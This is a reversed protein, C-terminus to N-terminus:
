SNIHHQISHMQHWVYLTYSTMCFHTHFWHLPQSSFSVTPAIDLVMPTIDHQLPHSMFVTTQHSLTSKIDDTTCLTVCIRLTTDRDVVCLTTNDYMTSIIDYIYHIPHWMYATHSIMCLTATIDNISHTHNCLYLPHSTLYLPHSTLYLPSSTMFLSIHHLLSHIHHWIYHMHHWIYLPQSSKCESREMFNTCQKYHWIYKSHLTLCLPQSPVCHKHPWLVTRSAMDLSYTMIMYPKIDYITDNHSTVCMTFTVDYLTSSIDYIVCTIYHIYHMHYWLYYPSNDYLTSIIDHIICIIAYMHQRHHSVCYSHHRQGLRHSSMCLPHSPLKLPNWTLYLAQTTMSVNHTVDYIICIIDYVSHTGHSVFLPTNEALTSTIDYLTGITDHMCHTHNWVYMPHSIMLWTPKIVCICQTDHWICDHCQWENVMHSTMYVSYLTLFM